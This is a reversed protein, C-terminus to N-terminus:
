VQEEAYHGLCAPTLYKPRGTRLRWGHPAELHLSEGLSMCINVLAQGQDRSVGAERFQKKPQIILINEMGSLPIEGPSASLLWM